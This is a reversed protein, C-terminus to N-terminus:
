QYGKSYAELLAAQTKQTNMMIVSTLVVSVLMMMAMFVGLVPYLINTEKKSQKTEKVEEEM